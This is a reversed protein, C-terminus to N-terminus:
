EVINIQEAVYNGSTIETFLEYAHESMMIGMGYIHSHFVDSTFTYKQPIIRQKRLSEEEAHVEDSMSRPADGCRKCVRGESLEETRFIGFTNKLVVMEFFQGCESLDDFYPLTVFLNDKDAVASKPIPLV